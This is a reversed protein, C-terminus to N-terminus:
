NYASTYLQGYNQEHFQIVVQWIINTPTNATQAFPNTFNVGPHTYMWAFLNTKGGGINVFM